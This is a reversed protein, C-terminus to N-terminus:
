SFNSSHRGPSSKAEWFHSNHRATPRELPTTPTTAHTRILRKRMSFVLIPGDIGDTGAAKHRCAGRQVFCFEGFDFMVMGAIGLIAPPYNGIRHDTPSESAAQLGLLLPMGITLLVFGHVSVLVRREPDDCVPRPHNRCDLAMAQVHLGKHDIFNLEIDGTVSPPLARLWKM